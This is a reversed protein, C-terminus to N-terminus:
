FIAIQLTLYLFQYLIIETDFELTMVKTVYNGNLDFHTFSPLKMLIYRVYVNKECASIIFIQVQFLM